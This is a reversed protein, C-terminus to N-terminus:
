NLEKLEFNWIDEVIYRLFLFYYKMNTYINLLM